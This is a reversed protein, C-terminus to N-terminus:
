GFWRKFFSMTVKPPAVVPIKEIKLWGDILFEQKKPPTPKKVPVANQVSTVKAAPTTHSSQRQVRLPALPAVLVPDDYNPDQALRRGLNKRDRRAQRRKSKRSGM